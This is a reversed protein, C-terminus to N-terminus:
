RLHMRVDAFADRVQLRSAVNATLHADDLCQSPTGTRSKRSMDPGALALRHRGASCTLKRTTRTRALQFKRRTLRREFARVAPVQLGNCLVAANDRFEIKVTCQTLLGASALGLNDCGDVAVRATGCGVLRGVVQCLAGADISLDIANVQRKPNRGVAVVVCGVTEEHVCAGALHLTSTGDAPDLHCERRQGRQSDGTRSIITQPSGPKPVVEHKGFCRVQWEDYM